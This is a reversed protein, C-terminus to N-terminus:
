LKSIKNKLNIILKNKDDVVKAHTRMLDKIDQNLSEIKKRLFEVESRNSGVTQLNHLDIRTLNLEGEINYFKERWRVARVEEEALQSELSMIKNNRLYIGKKLNDNNRFVIELEQKQKEIIQNLKNIESEHVDQSVWSGCMPISHPLNLKKHLDQIMNKIGVIDDNSNNEPRKNWGNVTEEIYNKDHSYFVEIGCQHCVVFQIYSETCDIGVDTSECFPCPKLEIM